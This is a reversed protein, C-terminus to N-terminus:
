SSYFPTLFVCLEIYIVKCYIIKCLINVGAFTANMTLCTRLKFGFQASEALPIAYFRFAKNDGVNDTNAIIPHLLCM